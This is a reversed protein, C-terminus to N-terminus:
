LVLPVYHSGTKECWKQEAKNLMELREKLEKKLAKTDQERRFNTAVQEQHTKGRALMALMGEKFYQDAERQQVLKLRQEVEQEHDDLIAQRDKQKRAQEELEVKWEQLRKEEDKLLAEMEEIQGLRKQM